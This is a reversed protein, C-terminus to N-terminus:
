FLHKNTEKAARIIHQGIEKPNDIIECGFGTEHLATIWQSQDLLPAHRIRLKQDEFHWWGDLLGFTYNYFSRISTLENLFLVGQSRLLWNVNRLSNHINKTAHLINSAIILDYSEMEGSLKEKVGIDKVSFELFSYESGFCRRGYNLFSVSVDSFEYILYKGLPAIAKLVAESTSGTGAGIELIRIPGKQGIRKEIEKKVMEAMLNNLYDAVPNDAYIGRVLEVSGEPFMVSTAEIQGSMVAFSKKMCNLLLKIYGRYEPYKKLIQSVDSQIKENSVGRNESFEVFGDLRHLMSRKELIELIYSFLYHFKPLINLQEQLESVHEKKKKVLKAAYNFFEREMLDDALQNIEKLVPELAIYDQLEIRRADMRSIYQQEAKVVSLQLIPSGLIQHIVQVGEKESISYLGQANLLKNYKQGAVAGIEGWFGWNIVKVPIESDSNINLCFADQFTSAAGYNSQGRNGVYSQISSFYLMFDLPEHKVAHYLNVSGDMKADLVPTFTEWQMQVLGGDQLALASHIVGTIKGYEKKIQSIAQQLLQKDTLDAQRYAVTAGKCKVEELGELVASIENTQSRRGLLIVTAPTKKIMDKCLALGIGGLGGAIIYVGHSRWQHHGEISLVPRFTRTYVKDNRLSFEGKRVTELQRITALVQDSSTNPLDALVVNWELLENALTRTFGLLASYVPLISENEAIKNTNFTIVKLNLKKEHYGHNILSKIVKFLQYLIQRGEEEPHETKRNTAMPIFYISDIESQQGLLADFQIMQDDSRLSMVKAAPIYKAAESLSDGGGSIIITNGAAMIGPGPSLLRTEDWHEQLLNLQRGPKKSERMIIGQLEACVIGDANLILADFSHQGSQQERFIVYGKTGLSTSIIIRDVSFPMYFKQGEKQKSLVTGISQFAADILTPHIFNGREELVAYDALSIESVALSSTLYINNITKFYRGLQFDLTEFEQYIQEASILGRSNSKAQELKELYNHNSRVTLDLSIMGTCHVIKVDDSRTYFEFSLRDTQKRIELSLTIEIQVPALTVPVIWSINEIKYPETSLLEKIQQELIMLYAVGPYVPKNSICHESFLPDNLTIKKAYNLLVDSDKKEVITQYINKKGDINYTIKHFPYTPLPTRRVKKEQYIMLWDVVMGNIWMKALKQFDKKLVAQRILYALEEQDFIETLENKNKLNGLYIDMNEKGLCYQNIKDLLDLIDVAVIALRYEMEERGTQLTYMLQEFDPQDVALQSQGTDLSLLEHSIQEITVLGRENFININTNFKKNIQQMFETILIPDDLYERLNEKLGIENNQIGLIDFLIQAIDGQIVEESLIKQNTMNQSAELFKKFQKAYQHLVEESRASLVFVNMHATNNQVIESDMYEELLVHGNVGGFGFSSVGARRPIEQGRGDILRNWPENKTIIKFPTRDLKIYPNVTKCHLSAPLIQHRMALIVKFVGSIGAGAELHGINTKVSGVRCYGQQLKTGREDAIEKFAKKLGNIEIPDGLSTGTGHAEMYTVTAPDVQGEHFAMKILDAQANPNPATLTNVKGGHNIASGKIVTYIHDGDRVAKSLPKLLVTGCGEGRVYGDANQDFTKCKGDESLMRAKSFSVFITPSLMLNIGGAVAVECGGSWISEIASRIAVLSSSCATDVPVSPGKFNYLYNIRNALISHFNGTTTFAHIDIGNRALLDYYDNTSAGIYVGVKSKALDSIKYGADEVTKWVIELLIRQQPDMLEAEKPSIGFFEADFGYADRIFGGWKINTKNRDEFVDGYYDRWNWRTEPIESISDRNNVLNDWFEMLDDAGPMVGSIGIVAIDEKSSANVAKMPEYKPANVMETQAVTPIHHNIVTCQPVDLQWRKSLETRYEEILYETLQDLNSYEFFIAPTLDINYKKNISNSLKVLGVSEFGYDSLNTKEDIRDAAIGNMETIIAKIEKLLMLKYHDDMKEGSEDTFVVVQKVNDKSPSSGTDNLSREIKDQDGQVVAAQSFDSTLLLEFVHLGFDRDIPNFGFKHQMFEKSDNDVRMGGDKWLPWNISISKGSREGKRVLDNRYFAFQDMFANAYAYDTQGINGMVATLSSFLCYFDLPEHKFIEDLFMTGLVKAGIVQKFDTIEKKVFLSDKVIGAMHIIGNIHDYKSRCVSYLEEVQERVALDCSIYQYSSGNLLLSDLKEKQLQKLPSRGTLILNVRKQKLLYEAFLMGLGGAGGTILYVGDIKINDEIENKEVTKKEYQVISRVSKSYYIQNHDFNHNMEQLLSDIQNDLNMQSFGINKININANELHVAKSFGGISVFPISKLDANADYCIFIRIGDSSIFAKVLKFLWTLVTEIMDEPRDDDVSISCFDLVIDKIKSGDYLQSINQFKGKVLTKIINTHNGSKRIFQDLFLENASIILATQELPIDAKATLAAVTQQPVYFFSKQIEKQSEPVRAWFQNIKVLTNGSDDTILIDFKKNKTNRDIPKTIAWCEKTLAGYIIVSQISFPLNIYTELDRLKAAPPIQLAGDMLSPHLGYDKFDAALADPLHLAAIGSYEDYYLTEISQFANGLNLELEGLRQYVEKRSKHHKYKEIQQQILIPTDNIDDNEDFFLDGQCSIENCFLIQFKVSNDNQYLEIWIDENTQYVIPRLFIINRISTVKESTAYEGAARAMEIYAVGPLIMQSGVFHDSIFFEQGTLSLRYKQTRFDSKNETLMPHLANTKQFVSECYLVSGNHIWSREQLFPYTPLPIKQYDGQKILDILNQMINQDSDHNVIMNDINLQEMQERLDTISNAMLLYSSSFHERGYLLTGSLNKISLNSYSQLLFQKLSELYIKLQTESKASIYVPYQEKYKIDDDQTNDFSELILHANVGGAGFSSIGCLYTGNKGRPMMKYNKDALKFPTNKFDIKTNLNEAYLNGPIEQHEMMLILKILGAIGSAAELHGINAKVSGIFCTQPECNFKSFAKKLGQIEIPDGLSTGTGHCEIYSIESASIGAREITKYVLDAQANPNPVTYGTVKGGHNITSAKVIGYIHDGDELAKSKKKLLVAAVGEGPVYGDGGEAFSRCKGEASLFRGDSLFLYKGPHLNLNVGGALAMECDGSAIGQCAEHVAALSSSCATDIAISPGNFNMFYSVRNPIKWYLSGGGTFKNESLGEERAILSFENWTVGAYVGVSNEARHLQNGYGADEMCAWCVQLFLKEQPDMKAAENPSINFFLPDFKDINRIFGGWKSYTENEKELNSDYYKSFDWRDKPIEIISDKQMILNNWYKEKSEADPFKFSIGIIAIENNEDVLPEQEQKLSTDEKLIERNNLYGCLLDINPYEFLVTTDVLKFNKNLEVIIEETIISSIGMTFFAEDTKIQDLPINLKESILQKIYAEINMHDM